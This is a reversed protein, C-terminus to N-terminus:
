DDVVNLVAQRLDDLHAQKIRFVEDGGVLMAHRERSNERSISGALLTPLEVPEDAGEPQVCVTLRLAPTGLGYPSLDAPIPSQDVGQAKVSSIASLLMEMDSPSDWTKGAPQVVRWGDRGREFAYNTGDLTMAVQVAEEKSFVLRDKNRFLFLDLNRIAEAAEAAILVVDGTDQTAYFAEQEPVKAGICIRGPADEERYTLTLTASPPELGTDVGSPLEPAVQGQYLCLNAILSSVAVQDAPEVRPRTLGWGRQDDLELMFEIDGSSFHIARIAKPPRTLLRRDRFGDPGDPLLSLLDGRVTAVAPANARQVFLRANKGERDLDGFRVTEPSHEGRYLTLRARPPDLGYLDLSEPEDVFGERAALLLAEVLAKLVVMNVGSEVPKVMRWVRDPGQEIVAPPPLAGSQAPRDWALEVKTVPEDRPTFLYFQRLGDLGRDFQAFSQGNILMLPGGNLRAYRNAQTPGAAGFVLGKTGHPTKMTLTLCPEDFGYIEPDTQAGPMIRESGLNRATTELHAWVEQLAEVPYPEVIRWRGDECVGVTPPEGSRQISMGLVPEEGLEFVNKGELVEQAKRAQSQGLLYYAGCLVVLVVFFFLTTRIRM